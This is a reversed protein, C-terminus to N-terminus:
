QGPHARDYELAEDLQARAQQMADIAAIRHGGYDRQDRQLEDILKELRRRVLMLNHGSGREGRVAAITQAQARATYAAGAGFMSIALLAAALASKWNKTM